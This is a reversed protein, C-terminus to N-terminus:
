FLLLELYFCLEIFVVYEEDILILFIPWSEIKTAFINDSLNELKITLLICCFSM